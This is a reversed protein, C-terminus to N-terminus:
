ILIPPRYLSAAHKDAPQNDIFAILLSSVTDVNLNFNSTLNVSGSVCTACDSDCCDAAGTHMEAHIDVIIVSADVTQDHEHCPLTAATEQEVTTSSDVMSSAMQSAFVTNASMLLVLFLALIKNFPKM